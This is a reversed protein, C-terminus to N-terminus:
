VGGHINMDENYKRWNSGIEMRMIRQLKEYEVLWLDDLRLIQMNCNIDSEVICLYLWYLFRLKKPLNYISM